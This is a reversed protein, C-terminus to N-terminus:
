WKIIHEHTSWQPLRGLQWCLVNIELTFCRAVHIDDETGILEGPPAVDGIIMLTVIHKSINVM